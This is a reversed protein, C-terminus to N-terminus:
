RRKKIRVTKSSFSYRRGDGEPEPVEFHFFRASGNKSNLEQLGKMNQISKRQYKSPKLEIEKTRTHKSSIEKAWKHKLNSEQLDKM